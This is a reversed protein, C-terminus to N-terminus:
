QSARRETLFQKGGIIAFLAGGALTWVAIALTAATYGSVGSLWALLVLGVVSGLREGTRLAGLVAAPGPGTVNSESLSLALSVQTGRVLAGGAGTGIMTLAMTLQSPALTVPLLALGTLAAGALCLVAGSLRLLEEIRGALPSVAMVTIFYLMLIRGIEAASAGNANLTLAVLYSVFAQLVVAGPIAIGFILAFLRADALVRWKSARDTATAQQSHTRGIGPAILWRSLLASAAILTASVLFVNSPGLRDALVGGLAVGSFVGGFLVLSFIGLMRDRDARTAVNLVYDQAALTVLAYGFGTVARWLIIEQATSAAFLGIHAALTPLAAAFFLGRVGFREVLVRAYPSMFVIALLYGALPLSILVSQDLWPWLNDASRTYIPLFALPLEDAAAFLFLALRIDSFSSTELLKPGGPSLGFRRGIKELALRSPATTTEIAGAWSNHLADARESMNSLIAQISDKGNGAVRRSFDHAAQMASLRQLRALGGTLTRGTLLLMAEWALLITVLLVVAADLFVDRFRQAILRPNIDIVVYAVEDGDRLIPHSRVGRRERPPALYPDIREGAEIVIRGTAIAIYAVEPLRELMDGFYRDAGVIEDLAIGSELARQVNESVVTGILNTRAALEPEISRTVARMVLTGLILASTVLLVITIPLVRALIKAKLRGPQGPSAEESHGHLHPPSVPLGEASAGIARQAEGYAEEADHLSRALQSFEADLGGRKQSRDPSATAELTRGQRYAQLLAALRRQPRDLALYILIYALASTGILILLASRLTVRVINQSATELPGHPYEVVVAGSLPAGTERHISFGSYIVDSTEHGWTNHDALRMATLVEQSLQLPKRGTTYAVIGAPNIAHVAVIEPDIAIGRAVIKDGDRLMTIPLGLDLVPRFTEATTQAIVAIRQRLLASYLANHQLVLLVSLVALAIGIVLTTVIWSRFRM